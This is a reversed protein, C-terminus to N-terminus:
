ARFVRQQRPVVWSNSVIEPRRNSPNLYINQSNYLANILPALLGAGSGFGPFAPNYATLAVGDPTGKDDNRDFKYVLKFDGRNLSSPRM